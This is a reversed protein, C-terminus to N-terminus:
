TVNDLRLTFKGNCTATCFPPAGHPLEHYDDSTSYFDATQDQWSTCHDRVFGRGIGLAGGFSRQLKRSTGGLSKLRRIPAPFARPEEFVPPDELITFPPPTTLKSRKSPSSQAPSSEPSLYPTKRKRSNMQPTELPKEVMVDAFNVTKRPTSRHTANNSRNIASRTIDQLQRGSSSLKSSGHTSTRPTFFRTFRKPTIPPPKKPKRSGMTATPMAMPIPPPSSPLEPLPGSRADCPSSMNELLVHIIFLCNFWWFPSQFASFVVTCHFRHSSSRIYPSTTSTPATCQGVCSVRQFDRGAYLPM